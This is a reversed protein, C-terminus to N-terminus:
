FALCGTLFAQYAKGLDQFKTALEQTQQSSCTSIYQEINTKVGFVDSMADAASRKMFTALGDAIVHANGRTKELVPASDYGFELNCGLIQCATGVVLVGSCLKTRSDQPLALITEKYDMLFDLMASANILAEM